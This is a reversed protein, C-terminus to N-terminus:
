VKTKLIEIEIKLKNNEDKFNSLEKLIDKSTAKIEDLASQMHGFDGALKQTLVDNSDIKSAISDFEKHKEVCSFPIKDKKTQKYTLFGVVALAVTGVAIIFNLDITM